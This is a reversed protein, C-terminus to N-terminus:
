GATLARARAVDLAMQELLADVGDFKLTARLRPGFDFAVSEGYLDLGTRDVCYAEVRRESGDFTPNTGISIAAPLREGSPRVLWGAYIGDAPVASHRAVQLNATPYGLERGRHDGHVVV